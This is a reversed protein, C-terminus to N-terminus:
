FYPKASFVSWLAVLLLLLLLLLLLEHESGVAVGFQEFAEENLNRRVQKAPGMVQRSGSRTWCSGWRAKAFAM